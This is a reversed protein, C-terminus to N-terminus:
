QNMEEAVLAWLNEKNPTVRAPSKNTNTETTTTMGPKKKRIQEASWSAVEDLHLAKYAREPDTFGPNQEMFELVKQTDFKPRGDTGDIKTELEQCSEVLREATRRNQYYSDLDDKLVLGIKKAAQRAQELQDEVEGVDSSNKSGELAELQQKLEGIRESKKGWESVFKDFGGHSSGVEKARQGLGVLESLEENTYEREGLKVKQEQPETVEQTEEVEESTETELADGMSNLATEDINPM